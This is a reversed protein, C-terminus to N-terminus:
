DVIQDLSSLSTRMLKLASDCPHLIDCSVSVEIM